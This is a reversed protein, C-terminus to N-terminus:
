NIYLWPPNTHIFYKLHPKLEWSSGNSACSGLSFGPKYIYTWNPQLCPSFLELVYIKNLHHRDVHHDTKWADVSIGLFIRTWQFRPDSSDLVGDSSDGSRDVVLEMIDGELKEFEDIVLDTKKGELELDIECGPL